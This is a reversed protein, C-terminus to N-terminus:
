HFVPDRFLRNIKLARERLLRLTETVGDYPSIHRLKESEYIRCAKEYIGDVPINRDEMYQRIHAHSEFGHVPRLFYSFLEEGDTYGLFQVIEHCSAIQAGVLDFLTNDMDFLLTSVPTVPVSMLVPIHAHLM